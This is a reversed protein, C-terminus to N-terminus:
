KVVSHAAISKDIFTNAGVTVQYGVEIPGVITCNPYIIVEDGIKPYGKKYGITVGQYITVQNGVVVNRGIVICFPHPLKLGNGINVAEGVDISHKAILINRILVHTLGKTKAALRILICAHISPNFFSKLIIILSLGGYEQKIDSALKSLM